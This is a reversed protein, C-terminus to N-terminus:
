RREEAQLRNRRDEEAQAREELEEIWDKYQQLNPIPPSVYAGGRNAEIRQEEELVKARLEQLTMEEASAATNRSTTGKTSTSSPTSVMRTTATKTRYDVDGQARRDNETIGRKNKPTKRM